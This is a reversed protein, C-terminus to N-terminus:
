TTHEKISLAGNKARDIRVGYGFCRKADPEVLAKLEKEARGFAKAADRNDLWQGAASAWANSGSMDYERVAPVPAAVAPMEVPPTLDQVQQWFWAIRAWVEAEYDDPIDLPYEQPEAGGHVILLSGSSAGVCARQVVIQPLYFSCADEIKHWAGIAKCDIVRDDLDRYADLTCCVHPLQPNVAVEGRRVLANGTKREHWDLAFTEIYSGFQVAWVDALDDEELDPSGVLRHWERLIKTHDGALLAPAFSATVRGDRAALQAPTLTM